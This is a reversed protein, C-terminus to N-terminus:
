SNYGCTSLLWRRHYELAGFWERNHMSMQRSYHALIFESNLLQKCSHSCVGGFLSSELMANFHRRFLFINLINNVLARLGTWTYGGKGGVKSYVNIYRCQPVDVFSALWHSFRHKLRFPSQLSINYGLQIHTECYCINFHPPPPLSYRM